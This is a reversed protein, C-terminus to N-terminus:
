SVGKRRQEDAERIRALYRAADERVHPNSRKWDLLHGIFFHCPPDRTLTILNDPDLELDPREHYPVIHHVEVDDTKGCAACAPNKRIHEARVRTWAGARGLDIGFIRRIIGTLTM